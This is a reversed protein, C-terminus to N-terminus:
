QKWFLLHVEGPGIEKFSYEYKKSKLEDILYVPVRKHYVYLAQGDELLDLEELITHMPMPMKLHRVDISKMHGQFKELLGDWDRPSEIDAIAVPEANGNALGFYTHVTNADIWESYSIYGKKELLAVLPTPEFSNILKLVHPKPLAHITKMILQLPDDNKELLPRVDLSVIKDAALNQFFAPRAGGKNNNMRIPETEDPEFGLPVLAAFFDRVPVNGIKAAQAISTRGAMLRRLVPNKLKEFKRDIAIIADLSAMNHKLLAAIKTNASIKMLM